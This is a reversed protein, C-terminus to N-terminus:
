PCTFESRSFDLTAEFHALLCRQPTGNTKSAITGCIAYIHLVLYYRTILCNRVERISLLSHYNYYNNNWIRVCRSDLELWLGRLRVPAQWRPARGGALRNRGSSRFGLFIIATCKAWHTKFYQVMNDLASITKFIKNKFLQHLIYCCQWM